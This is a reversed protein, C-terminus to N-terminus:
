SEALVTQGWFFPPLKISWFGDKAEIELEPGLEPVACRVSKPKAGNWRLRANWRTQPAPADDGGKIWPPAFQQIHIATASGGKRYVGLLLGDAEEPEVLPKSLGKLLKGVADSVAKEQTKRFLGGWDIALQVIAGKGLRSIKMAPDGDNADLSASRADDPLASLPRAKFAAGGASKFEIEVRGAITEWSPFEDGFPFISRDGLPKELAEGFEDCVGFWPGAVLTGGDKVYALIREFQGNKLAPALPMILLPHKAFSGDDIHADYVVDCALGAFAMAHHWGALSHWYHDTWAGSYQPDRGFVFTESQQSLHLAAYPVSPLNLHPARPRLESALRGLLPIEVAADGGGTSAHGGATACALAFDMAKRPNCIPGRPTEQRTGNLGMWVESGGRGYARMCRTYFAGRLPEGDAETASLFGRGFPNLPIAGSWGVGERHYHNFAISAYPFREHIRDVLRQWYGSFMEYRWQVWRKFEMKSWDVSVPLELGTEDKFKRKCHRCSCSVPLPRVHTTSFNSGDYWIGDLGFREIAEISYNIMAEGYPSNVCCMRTSHTAGPKPPILYEQRWDPFANWAAENESLALWSMACIKRKHIEDVWEHLQREHEPTAEPWLPLHKSPFYSGKHHHAVGIWRAEVGMNASLLEFSEKPVGGCTGDPLPRNENRILAKMYNRWSADPGARLEDPIEASWEMAHTLLSWGGTGSIVRVSLLHRGANLLISFRHRMGGVHGRNGAKTSFVEKGDIRWCASWDADYSISLAGDKATEIEAFAYAQPTGEPWGLLATFDIVCAGPPLTASKLRQGNLSELPRPTETAFDLETETWADLSGAIQFPGAVFWEGIRCDASKM